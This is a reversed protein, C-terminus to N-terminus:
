QTTRSNRSTNTKRTKLAKTKKKEYNEKIIKKLLNKFTNYSCNRDLSAAKDNWERAGWMRCTKQYLNTRCVKIYLHGHQRTIRTSVESNRSFFNNFADPLQNRMFSFVFMLTRHLHKQRLKLLNLENFMQDTHAKFPASKIIRVVKKQLKFLSDIYMNCANGWVEICYSLYSYVLSHYLLIMASM